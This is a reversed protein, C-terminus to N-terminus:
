YTDGVKSFTVVKWPTAVLESAHHGLGAYVAAIILSTSLGTTLIKTCTLLFGPMSLAPFWQNSVFGIIIWVDHAFIKRRKLRQSWFRLGVAIAALVEFIMTIGIILAAKSDGSNNPDM